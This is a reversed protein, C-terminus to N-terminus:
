SLESSAKEDTKDDKDIILHGIKRLDMLIDKENDSLEEDNDIKAMIKGISIVTTGFVTFCTLACAATCGVTTIIIKKFM